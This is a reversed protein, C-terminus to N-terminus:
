RRPSASSAPAPAGTSGGPIAAPRLWGGVAPSPVRRLVVLAVGGAVVMLVSLWQGRSLGAFRQVTLDADPLRYMETAVRLVGYVVLFWAGVVGPTRPRAWVVLLAIGLVVGEALAQYLQSPHRASILPALREGLAQGEAGGRQIAELLRSYAGDFGDGARAFPRVLADLEHARELYTAPATKRLIEGSDHGSLVEQPFRVAWWPAPQGPMAVIKGLLEGNIFNALRGLMLGIPCLFAALDMVHLPSCRGVRSGDPRRFGRSVRWCALIVGVMAGHSAMGGKNLQLLGWFPLEGTFRWLLSQEYILVYGLRGGLLVGFILWFMADGVHREPVLASGRRALRTLTWWAAVFGAIYALGYWRVGLGDSFRVVFPGLDHLWAALTM